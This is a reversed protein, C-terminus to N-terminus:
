RLRSAYRALKRLLDSTITTSGPLSKKLAIRPEDIPCLAGIAGAFFYAKASGPKMSSSSPANASISTTSPKRGNRLGGIHRPTNSRAVFILSPCIRKM